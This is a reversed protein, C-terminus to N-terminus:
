VEKKFFGQGKSHERAPLALGLGEDGWGEEGAGEWGGCRSFLSFLLVTL